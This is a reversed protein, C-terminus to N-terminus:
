RIQRDENYLYKVCFPLNFETIVNSPLVAEVGIISRLLYTQGAVTRWNKFSMGIGLIIQEDSYCNGEIDQEPFYFQPHIFM